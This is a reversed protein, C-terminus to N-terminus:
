ATWDRPAVVAVVTAVGCPTVVAVVVVHPVVVAVAVVVGCPVVIAVTADRSCDHCWAARRCRGRRWARHSEVRARPSTFRQSMLVATTRGSTNTNSIYKKNCIALILFVYHKKIMVPRRRSEFDRLGFHGRSCPFGLSCRARARLNGRGLTRTRNKEPVPVPPGFFGWPRGHRDRSASRGHRM